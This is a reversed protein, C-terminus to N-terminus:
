CIIASYPKIFHLYILIIQLVTTFLVQPSCGRKPTALWRHSAVQDNGFIVNQIYILRRYTGGGINLQTALTAHDLDASPLASRQLQLRKM